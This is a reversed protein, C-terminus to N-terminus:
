SLMYLTWEILPIGFNFETHLQFFALNLCCGEWLAPQSTHHCIHVKKCVLAVGSPLLPSKWTSCLPLLHLCIRPSKQPVNSRPSDTELPLATSRRRQASCYQSDPRPALGSLNFNAQGTSHGICHGAGVLSLHFAWTFMHACLHSKGGLYVWFGWFSKWLPHGYSWCLFFYM